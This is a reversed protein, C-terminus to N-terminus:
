LQAVVIARTQAALLDPVLLEVTALAAVHTVVRAVLTADAQKLEHDDVVLITESM